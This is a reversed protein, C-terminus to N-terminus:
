LVMFEVCLVRREHQIMNTKLDHNYLGNNAALLYLGIPVTEM